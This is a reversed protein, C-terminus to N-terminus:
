SILNTSPTGTAISPSTVIFSKSAALSVRVRWAAETGLPNPFDEKSENADEPTSITVEVISLLVVIYKAGSLEPVDPDIVNSPITSASKDDIVRLIREPETSELPLSRDEPEFM